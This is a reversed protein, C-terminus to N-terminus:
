HITIKKAEPKSAKPLTLTLLGNKMKAELKDVQGDSPLLTTFKFHKKPKKSDGDKDVYCASREVEAEIVLLSEDVSIKVDDKDAGPIAVELCYAKKCEMWRLPRAFHGNSPFGDRSLWHHMCAVSDKFLRETPDKDYPFHKAQLPNILVIELCLVSVCKLLKNM